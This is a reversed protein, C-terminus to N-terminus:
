QNQASASQEGTRPASKKLTRIVTNISLNLRLEVYSFDNFFMSRGYLTTHEQEVFSLLFSAHKGTNEAIYVVKALGKLWFKVPVENTTSFFLTVPM